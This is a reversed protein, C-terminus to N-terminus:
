PKPEKGPWYITKGSQYRVYDPGDCFADWWLLIVRWWLKVAPREYRAQRAVFVAAQWAQPVIWRCFLYAFVAWTLCGTWYFITTM